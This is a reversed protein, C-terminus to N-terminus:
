KMLELFLKYFEIGDKFAQDYVIDQVLSELKVQLDEYDYFCKKIELDNKTDIFKCIMNIEMNYKLYQQNKFLLKEGIENLRRDLSDSTYSEILLMKNM